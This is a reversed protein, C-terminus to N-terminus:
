WFVWRLVSYIQAAHASFDRKKEREQPASFLELQGPVKVGM